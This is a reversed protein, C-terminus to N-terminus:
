KIGSFSVLKGTKLNLECSQSDITYASITEGDENLKVRMYLTYLGPKEAFWVTKGGPGICYLNSERTPFGVPKELVILGVFTQIVKDIQTHLPEYDM